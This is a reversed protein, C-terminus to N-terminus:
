TKCARRIRVPSSSASPQLLREGGQCGLDFYPEACCALGHFSQMDVDVLVFTCWSERARDCDILQQESLAVKQGTVLTNVCEVAAITAFAQLCAPVM